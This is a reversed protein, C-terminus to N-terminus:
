FEIEPIQDMDILPTQDSEFDLDDANKWDGASQGRSCLSRYVCYNCSKENMTLEFDGEHLSAIENVLNTLFELDTNKREESYKIEIPQTPYESYWYIMKITSPQIIQNDNLIDGAYTMLFPYVKSQCNKLLREPKPQFQSTKWDLIICTKGPEIAILDYKAFLRYSLFPASISFEVWQHDPLDLPSHELYNRWWNHLQTENIQDTIRDISVGNKQQQIMRHFCTGLEIHREVERAPESQVAPWSRQLLYRLEFRKPCDLYDRLNHQTFHFDTPLPM